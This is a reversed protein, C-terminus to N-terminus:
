AEKLREKWYEPKRKCHAVAVILIKEETSLYIIAFPFKKLLYRRTTGEYIQWMESTQSIKLAGQRVEILFEIGLGEIKSDYWNAAEQIEEKARPHYEVKKVM